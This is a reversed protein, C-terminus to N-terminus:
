EDRASFALAYVYKTATGAPLTGRCLQISNHFHRRIEGVSKKSKLEDRHVALLLMCIKSTEERKRLMREHLRKRCQALLWYNQYVTAMCPNVCIIPLFSEQLYYLLRFRLLLELLPPQVRNKEPPSLAKRDTYDICGWLELRVSACSTSCRM